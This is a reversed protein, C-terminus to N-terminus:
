QTSDPQQFTWCRKKLHQMKMRKPLLLIQFKLIETMQQHIKKRHKLHPHIKDPVYTTQLDDATMQCSIMMLAAIVATM